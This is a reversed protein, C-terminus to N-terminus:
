PEEVFVTQAALKEFCLNVTRGLARTRHIIMAPITACQTPLLRIARGGALEIVLCGSMVVFCEDSEPHYHWEYVDDFVALRVCHDNIRNIVMNRYKEAVADAEATLDVRQLPSYKVSENTYNDSSIDVLAGQATPPFLM